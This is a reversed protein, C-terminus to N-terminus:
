EDPLGARLDQEIIGAVRLVHAEERPPGIIQVGIPLGNRGRAVPITVVPLDFVNYTQCYSFARFVSISRGDIDVRRSGHAFATRSGVPAIIIQGPGMWQLLADRLKDRRALAAQAAQLRIASETSSIVPASLLSQVTAGALYEQGRYTERLEDLSSASFLEIWLQAGETVGPPVCESIQTGRDRLAAAATRVARSTEETVPVIGDDAYWAVSVGRLDREDPATPDSGGDAIVGFLLKLDEVHRAMPGICAGQALLGAARPVHGSMPVRGTAPKLGAIGCFHAPVRISGSLDSGIGAPSLHAAIAAAEGGSSGGATRSVDLPNNTRGFVANDTEYPIAMEPTNTKGLIIAGANKLRSVVAADKKPVVDAFLKSGFTTRLGATEITDKVTIPVGHLSGLEDGKMVSAEALRAQDPVDSGITVVANLAPNILGIRDLHSQVVEVPSVARAKIMEALKAASYSTLDDM